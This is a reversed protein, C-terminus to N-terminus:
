RHCISMKEDKLHLHKQLASGMLAEIRYKVNHVQLTCQMHDEEMLQYGKLSLM